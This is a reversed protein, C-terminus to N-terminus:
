QLQEDKKRRTRKKKPQEGLMLLLEPVTLHEIAQHIHNQVKDSILDTIAGEMYDTCDIGWESKVRDVLLTKIELLEVGSKM